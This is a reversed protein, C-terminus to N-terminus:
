NRAFVGVRRLVGASVLGFALLGLASPEPVPAITMESIGFEAGVGSASRVFQNTILFSSAPKALPGLDVTTYGAGTFGPDFLISNLQVMTLDILNHDRDFAALRLDGVFQFSLAVNVSIAQVDFDPFTGLIEHTLNPPNGFGTSGLAEDGAIFGVFDASAPFVVGRDAFFNPDFPGQGAESFDLTVPTARATPAAVSLLGVVLLLLGCPRHISM